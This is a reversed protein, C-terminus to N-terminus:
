LNYRYKFYYEINNIEDTNLIRSIMFFESIECNLPQSPGGALFTNQIAGTGTTGVPNNDLSNVRCKSSAGNFTIVFYSFSTFSLPSALTAGSGAYMYPASATTYNNMYTLQPYNTSSNFFCQYTPQATISIPKAVMCITYIQAISIHTSNLSSTGSFRLSPLGNIKNTYFIPRSGTTAQIFNTTGVNDAWTYVLDGNNCPVASGSDSYVGVDAKIWYKIDPVLSSPLFPMPTSYDNVSYRRVGRQLTHIQSMNHQLEILLDM